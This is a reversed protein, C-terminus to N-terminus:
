GLAISFVDDDAEPLPHDFTQTNDAILIDIRANDAAHKRRKWAEGKETALFAQKRAHEVRRTNRAGQGIRDQYAVKAAAEPSLPTTAGYLEFDQNNLSPITEADSPSTVRGQYLCADEADAQSGPMTDCEIDFNSVRRAENAAKRQTSLHLKAAQVLESRTTTPLCILTLNSREAKRVLEATETIVTRQVQYTMGGSSKTIMTPSAVAYKADGYSQTNFTTRVKRLQGSQLLLDLTTQRVSRDVSVMRTQRPSTTKAEPSPVNQVVTGVAALLSAETVANLKSLKSLIQGAVMQVQTTTTTTM